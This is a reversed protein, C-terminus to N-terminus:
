CSPSAAQRKRRLRKAERCEWASQRTYLTVKVSCWTDSLAADGSSLSEGVLNGNIGLHTRRPTWALQTQGRMSVHKARTEQMRTYHPVYQHTM